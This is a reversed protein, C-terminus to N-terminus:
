RALDLWMLMQSVYPNGLRSGASLSPEHGVCFFPPTSFLEPKALQVMSFLAIMERGGLGLFYLSIVPAARGM